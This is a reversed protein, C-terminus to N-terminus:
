RGGRTGVRNSTRQSSSFWDFGDEDDHFDDDDDNDDDDYDYDDNDYNLQGEGQHRNHKLDKPLFIIGEGEELSILITPKM